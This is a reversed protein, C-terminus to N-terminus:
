LLTVTKHYCTYWRSCYVVLLAIFKPSCSEAYAIKLHNMGMTNIIVFQYFTFM